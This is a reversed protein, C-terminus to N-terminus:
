TDNEKEELTYPLLRYGTRPNISGRLLTRCLPVMELSKPAMTSPM